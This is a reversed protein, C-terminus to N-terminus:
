GQIWLNISLQTTSSNSALGSLILRGYGAPPPNIGINTWGIGGSTNISTINAMGTPVTYNADAAGPISVNSPKDRGAQWQALFHANAGASGVDAKIWVGFYKVFSTDVYGSFISAQSACAISAMLTFGGGINMAQCM